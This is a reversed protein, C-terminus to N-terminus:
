EKPFYKAKKRLENCALLGQLLISETYGEKLVEECYEHLLKIRYSRLVRLKFEASKEISTVKSYVTQWRKNVNPKYKSKINVPSMFNSGIEKTLNSSLRTM